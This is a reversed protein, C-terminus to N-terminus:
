AQLNQEALFSPCDDTVLNWFRRVCKISDGIIRQTKQAFRSLLLSNELRRLDYRYRRTPAALSRLRFMDDRIEPDECVDFFGSHVKGRNLADNFAFLQNRGHCDPIIVAVVPINFHSPCFTDDMAAM